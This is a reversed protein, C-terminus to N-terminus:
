ESPRDQEAAIPDLFAAVHRVRKRVLATRSQCVDGILRRLEGYCKASDRDGRVAAWAQRIAAESWLLGALTGAQWKSWHKRAYTILAHRTMLRLPAPVRRAHLPWHHAVELGPDYWVSWGANAARRCFDVDEYYLFFSEDLGGLKAFCDRRVLLCGGTVWDVARYEEAEQHRCKRRSRPRLLGSLTNLFTPFPGASAQNTGDSNKLRFGVVGAHPGSEEMRDIAAIADDLFGDEVTVDPNMLLLWKGRGLRSGRNVAKAFGHNRNFGRITVGRLRKLRRVVPHFPSHNDVIVVEAFGSRVAFSRRLQRALRATNRWQCFNVIVVSLEPSRPPAPSRPFRSRTPEPTAAPSTTPGGEPPVALAM